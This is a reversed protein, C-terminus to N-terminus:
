TWSFPQKGRTVATLYCSQNLLSAMFNAMTLLCRQHATPLSTGLSELVCPVIYPRCPPLVVKTEERRSSGSWEQLSAHLVLPIKYYM